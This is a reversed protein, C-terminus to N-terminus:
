FMDKCHQVVTFVDKGDSLAAANALSKGMDINLGVCAHPKAADVREELAEAEFHFGKAICDKPASSLVTGAKEIWTCSYPMYAAESVSSVAALALAAGIITLKKM